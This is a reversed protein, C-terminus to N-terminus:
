SCKCLFVISLVKPKDKRASSHVTAGFRIGLSERLQVHCPHFQNWNGEWWPTSRWTGHPFSVTKSHIEGSEHSHPWSHPPDQVFSKESSDLLTHSSMSLPSPSSWAAIPVGFSTTIKWNQTLINCHVLLSRWEFYPYRRKELQKLAHNNQLAQWTDQAPHFVRRRWEHSVNQM